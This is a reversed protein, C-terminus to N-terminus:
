LLSCWSPTALNLHIPENKCFEYVVEDLYAETIPSIYNTLIDIDVPNYNLKMELPGNRGNLLFGKEENFDFMESSLIDELNDNDYPIVRIININSVNNNNNSSLSSSLQISFDIILPNTLNNFYDENSSYISNFYENVKNKISVSYPLLEPFYLFNFYQSFGNLKGNLGIFGRFYCHLPIDEWPIFCLECNFENSDEPYYELIRKFELYSKTSNILSDYVEDINTLKVQDMTAKFFSQIIMNRNPYEQNDQNQYFPSDCLIQLYKKMNEKITPLSPYDVFTDKITQTKITSRIGNSSNFNSKFLLSNINSKLQLLTEEEKNSLLTERGQDSIVYYEFYNYLTQVEIRSLSLYVCNTPSFENNTNLMVNMNSILNRNIQQMTYEIYEAMRANDRINESYFNDTDSDLYSSHAFKPALGNTLDQMQPVAQALDFNEGQHSQDNMQYQKYYSVENKSKNACSVNDM